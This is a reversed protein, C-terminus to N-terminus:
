KNAGRWIRVGDRDRQSYMEVGNCKGFYHAAARAAPAVKKDVWFSDGEVMLSFPYISKSPTTKKFPVNKEIAFIKM